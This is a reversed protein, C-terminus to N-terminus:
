KLITLKRSLISNKTELKYLYVGSPIRLANFSVSHKGPMKTDNVLTQIQQGLMNYVNLKVWSESPIDFQIITTPNFPNPYNQYLYLQQPIELVLNEISTIVEGLNGNKSVQLARISFDFQHFGVVIAGGRCDTSARADSFVPVNLTVDATDWLRVGATDIRQAVISNRYRSDTSIYIKSDEISTFVAWTAMSTSDVTSVQIAGDQFVSEGSERVRQTFTRMINPRARKGWAITAGGDQNAEIVVWPPNLGTSQLSDELIIGDNGWLIVGSSDVRQCTARWYPDGNNYDLYKMGAIVLGSYGDPAIRQIGIQDQQVGSPGWLGNGLADFRQIRSAGFIMIVGKQGDSIMLPREPSNWVYRGSDGWLRTGLSDIRNIRLDGMTDVWAVICGGEGDPVIAQQDQNTESISVRVGTAGWLLNGSSDVRQVRIRFTGGIQAISDDSYAILVGGRGDETIKAFWQEPLEGLIRISTGWPKYGYRDLRELVLRRPYGLNQEYTIYCGGASDSAIEPLLGYGVILNNTPDTSWQAYSCYTLVATTLISYTIRRM